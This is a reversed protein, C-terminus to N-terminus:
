FDLGLLTFLFHRKSIERSTDYIDDYPKVTRTASLYSKHQWGSHIINIYKNAHVALM